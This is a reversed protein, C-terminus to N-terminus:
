TWGRFFRRASPRTLLVLVVVPIVLQTLGRPDGRGVSALAGLLWLGCAAVAWWFLRMGGQGMRVAVVCAIVAPVCVWIARGVAESSGGVTALYGLVTLVTLGAGILLAVRAARVPGPM